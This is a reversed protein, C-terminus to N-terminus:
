RDGRRRVAVGVAESPVPSGAEAPRGFAGDARCFAHLGSYRSPVSVQGAQAFVDIRDAHRRVSEMLTIPDSSERAGHAAFVMPAALLSELDLTFTMALARSLITGPPPRLADLLLSRSDPALM